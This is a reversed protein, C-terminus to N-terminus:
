MIEHGARLWLAGLTSGIRGSGIIGIKLGADAANATRAAYPLTGLALGAAATGAARLFERRNTKVGDSTTM